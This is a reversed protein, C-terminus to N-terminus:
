QLYSIDHRVADHLRQRRQAAHDPDAPHNAHDDLITWTGDALHDALRTLEARATRRDRTRHPRPRHRRRPQPRTRHQHPHRQSGPDRHHRKSHDASTTAATIAMGLGAIIRAAHPIPLLLPSALDVEIDREAKAQLCKDVIHDIAEDTLYTQMAHCDAIRLRTAIATIHDALIHEAAGDPLTLGRRECGDRLQQALLRFRQSKSNPNV